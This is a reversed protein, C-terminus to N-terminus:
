PSNYFQAGAYSCCCFIAICFFSTMHELLLYKHSFIDSVSVYGNSSSWPESTWTNTEWFHFTGDSAIIFNLDRSIGNVLFSFSFQFNVMCNLL